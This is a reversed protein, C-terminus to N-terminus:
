QGQLIEFSFSIRDIEVGQDKLAVLARESLLNDNPTVVKDVLTYTAHQPSYSGNIFIKVNKVRINQNTVLRPRSFKYSYMDYEQVDIEFSINQGPFYQDFSYSLTTRTGTSLDNLNIAPDNSAVVMSIKTGDERQRIEFTNPTASALFLSIEDRNTGQSLERWEYGNTQEIHWTYYNNNNIKIYFSDDNNNPANVYGYFKYTDSQGVQFSLYGIGATNNNVNLNGGNGNPVWMYHIDNEQAKTMPSVLSANEVSVLVTGSGGSMDAQFAQALPLSESTTFNGVAGGGSNEQEEEGESSTSEMLKKWNVISLRMEEANSTCDSWCNHNEDKLKLVMRSNAPNKFNVKFSNLVAQHADSASDVAHLPQQFVGHCVRCRANTIPHMTQSFAELSSLANSMPNTPAPVNISSGRPPPTKESPGKQTSSTSEDKDFKLKRNATGPKVCHTYGALLFSIGLFSLIVKAINKKL